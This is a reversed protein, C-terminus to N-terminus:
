STTIRLNQLHAVRLGAPPHSDHFLSHLPDPTLTAANDRYLKVLASILDAAATHRAAYADAQYEHRRSLQSLLPTLLFTFVPVVLFFLLLALATAAPGGAAPPTIGLGAYFWSQDILLGLLAFFALSFLGLLLVRQWIHHQRYHGLEHALVADIEAPDLRDLLTDYFVIRKARGFGTFYANGHTSRKSGDMVFLGSSKFGCRALLAEIRARLAPDALAEFKNFLPAILTPYLLLALLNFGMWFAWVYLWWASGMRTMLWLVALLLPTGIILALLTQKVLDALWLAPTLKNFGYRAELSFRQYLDLPLHALFSIVVVAAILALGHLYGGAPLYHRCLEDIHQLLGGLTFLLLLISGIALEILALRAKASGYDAAKHHEALSIRAAFADPVAHRHAAIHRLQRLKLWFHLLVNAALAALFLQTFQQATM